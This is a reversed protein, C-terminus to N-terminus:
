QASQIKTRTKNQNWCSSNSFHQCHSGVFFGCFQGCFDEVIKTPRLGCISEKFALAYSYITLYDDFEPFSRTKEIPFITYESGFNYSFVDLVKPSLEIM